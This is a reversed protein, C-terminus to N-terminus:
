HLVGPWAAVGGRRRREEFARQHRGSRGRGTLAPFRGRRAPPRSRGARLPEVVARAPGPGSRVWRPAAGAVFIAGLPRPSRVAKACAGRLEGLRPSQKACARGRGRRLIAAAPRALRLHPPPPPPRLPARHRCGRAERGPLRRLQTAAAQRAPPPPPPSRRRRAPPPPSSACARPRWRLARGCSGGRERRRAGATGGGRRRTARGRGAAGYRAGTEAAAGAPWARSAGSHLHPGPAGAALVSRRGRTGGPLGGGYTGARGAAAGSLGRGRVAGPWVASNDGDGGGRRVRQAGTAARRGRGM